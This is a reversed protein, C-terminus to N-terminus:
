SLSLFGLKKAAALLLCCYQLLPGPVQVRDRQPGEARLFTPDDRSFEAERCSDLGRGRQDGCVRAAIRPSVIVVAPILLIRLSGTLSTGLSFPESKHSLLCLPASRYVIEMARGGLVFSPRVMVPFGLKGAATVAEAESTVVFGPPQRIKLKELIGYWLDRDEAEDINEPQTGWIKVFGDGAFVNCGTDNDCSVNWTVAFGPSQPVKRKELIGDPTRQKTSTRLSREGSRSVDMVRGM